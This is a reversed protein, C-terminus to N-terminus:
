VRKWPPVLSMNLVDYIHGESALAVRKNRVRIMEGPEWSGPLSRVRDMIAAVHKHSGTTEFLRLFWNEATAIHITLWCKPLYLVACTDYNAPKFGILDTRGSSHGWHAAGNRENEVYDGLFNFLLNANAEFRPLVLLEVGACTACRRRIEGVPEIQRCHPAIWETIKEAYHLAKALSLPPHRPRLSRTSEPQSPNPRLSEATATMNFSM